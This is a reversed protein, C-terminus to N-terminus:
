SPNGDDLGLQTELQCSGIWGALAENCSMCSGDCSLILDPGDFLNLENDNPMSNVWVTVIGEVEGRNWVSGGPVWCCWCGGPVGDTVTEGGGVVVEEEGSGSFAEWGLVPVVVGVRLLVVLVVWRGMWVPSRGRVRARVGTSFILRVRQTRGVPSDPRDPMWGSIKRRLTKREAEHAERTTLTSHGTTGAAIATM